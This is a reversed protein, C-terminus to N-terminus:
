HPWCFHPAHLPHEGPALRSSPALSSQEPGPQHMRPTHQQRNIAGPEVDLVLGDTSSSGSRGPGAAISGPSNRGSDAEGESLWRVAPAQCVRCLVESGGSISRGPFHGMRSGPSHQAELAPSTGPSHFPMSLPITRPTCGLCGPQPPIGTGTGSEYRTSTSHFGRLTSRFGYPTGPLASLPEPMVKISILQSVHLAIGRRGPRRRETRCSPEATGHHQISSRNSSAGLLEGCSSEGGM